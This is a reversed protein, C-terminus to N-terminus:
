DAASIAKPRVLPEIAAFLTNSAYRESAGLKRAAYELSNIREPLKTADTDPHPHIAGGRRKISIVYQEMASYQWRAFTGDPWPETVRMLLSVVAADSKFATTQNLLQQLLGTQDGGNMMAEAMVAGLNDARLSSLVAAMMWPQGNAKAALKEPANDAQTHRIEGLTYALQLRVQPDADDVLKVLHEVLGEKPLSSNECLRM